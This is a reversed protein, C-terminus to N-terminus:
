ECIEIQSPSKKLVRIQSRFFQRPPDSETRSAQVRRLFRTKEACSKRNKGLRIHGQGLRKYGECFDGKESRVRVRVSSCKSELAGPHSYASRAFVNHSLESDSGSRTKEHRVFHWFSNLVRSCEFESDSLPILTLRSEM